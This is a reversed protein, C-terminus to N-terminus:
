KGSGLVLNMKHGKIRTKDSCKKIPMDPLDTRSHLARVTIAPEKGRMLSQEFAAKM